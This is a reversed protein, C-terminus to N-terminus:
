DGLTKPKDANAKGKKNKKGFHKKLQDLNLSPKKFSETDQTEYNQNIGFPNQNKENYIPDFKNVNLDYNWAPNINMQQPNPDPTINNNLPETQMKFADNEM